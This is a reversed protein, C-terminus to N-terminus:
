SVAGGVDRIFNYCMGASLEIDGRLTGSGALHQEM